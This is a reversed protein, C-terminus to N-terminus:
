CGSSAAESQAQDFGDERTPKWTAALRREGRGEGRSGEKVRASKVADKVSGRQSRSWKRTGMGMGMDM